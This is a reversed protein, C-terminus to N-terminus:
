RGGKADLNLKCFGGEPMAADAAYMDVETVARTNDTSIYCDWKQVFDTPKAGDITKIPGPCSPGNETGEQCTPRSDVGGLNGGRCEPDGNTNDDPCTDSADEAACQDQNMLYCFKTSGGEYKYKWFVCTSFDQCLTTCVVDDFTSFVKGSLNVNGCSTGGDEDECSCEVETMSGFPRGCTIKAETASSDCNGSYTCDIEQQHSFQMALCLLTLRFMWQSPM